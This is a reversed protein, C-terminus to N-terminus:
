RRTMKRPPQRQRLQLFVQHLLRPLGLLCSEHGPPSQGGRTAGTRGGEPEQIKGPLGGTSYRWGLSPAPSCLSQHASEIIM